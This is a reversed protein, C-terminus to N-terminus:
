KKRLLSYIASILGRAQISYGVPINFTLYLKNGGSFIGEPSYLSSLGIKQLSILLLNKIERVEIQSDDALTIELGSIKERGGNFFVKTSPIASTLDQLQHSFKRALRRRQNLEDANQRRYIRNAEKKPEPNRQYSERNLQKRSDLSSRYSARRIRNIKDKADKWYKRHNHNIREKNALYYEPSYEGM